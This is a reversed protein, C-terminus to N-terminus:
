KKILGAIKLEDRFASLRANVSYIKVALNKADQQITPQDAAIKLITAVREYFNRGRENVLLENIKKELIELATAPKAKLCPTMIDVINWRDIHQNAFSFAETYKEELCLASVYAPKKWKFTEIYHIREEKDMLEQITRYLSESFDRDNLHITVLKYLEPNDAPKLNDFFLKAFEDQFFGNFWLESAIHVFEAKNERLYFELLSHAVSVNKKFVKRASQEWAEIGGSKKQLETILWPLKDEVKHKQISDLLLASEVGSQSLAFLCPEFFSLFSPDNSFSKHFQDFLVTAITYLQDRSVQIVNFWSICSQLQNELENLLTVNGEPLSDYEDDLEAEMCAQYMGIIFLIAKDFQKESYYRVVEDMHESIISEIEDEAMHEMAEYDPIYGSHRPVYHEWDPENIDISEFDARVLDAVEKIFVDPDSITMKLVTDLPAHYFALFDEKLHPYKKFIEELFALKLQDSSDYYFQDFM